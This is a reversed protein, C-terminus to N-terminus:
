LTPSHYHERGPALGLSGDLSKKLLTSYRASEDVSVGGVPVLSCNCPEFLGFGFHVHNNRRLGAELSNGRLSGMEQHVKIKWPIRHNNLLSDAPNLSQCRHMRTDTNEVNDEPSCKLLIDDSPEHFFELHGSM